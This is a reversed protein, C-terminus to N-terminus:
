FFKNFNFHKYKLCKKQKNKMKDNTNRKSYTQKQRVVLNELFFYM